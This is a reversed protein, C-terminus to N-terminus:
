RPSAGISLMPHSDTARATQLVSPRKPWKVGILLMSGVIILGVGQPILGAPRVGEILFAATAAVTSGGRFVWYRRTISAPNARGRMFIPALGALNAAFNGWLTVFPNHYVLGGIVGVACIVIALGDGCTIQERRWNGRKLVVYATAFLLVFTSGLQSLPVALEWPTSGADHQAALSVGNVVTWILWGVLVASKFGKLIGRAQIYTAASLMMVSAIVFWEQAGM